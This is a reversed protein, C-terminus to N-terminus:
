AAREVIAGSRLGLLAIVVLAWGVFILLVRIFNGARWQRAATLLRAAPVDLPATFMLRNRPYHYRFTIVDCAVIALLAAGVLWRAPERTWLAATASLLLVQTMPSLVRFLRAPTARSLFLRGHELGQPGTQLNPALVVADYLSAGLLASLGTLAATTIALPIFSVM